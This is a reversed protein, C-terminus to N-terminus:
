GFAEFKVNHCKKKFVKSISINSTPWKEAISLGLSGFAKCLVLVIFIAMLVKEPHSLANVRYFEVRLLYRM